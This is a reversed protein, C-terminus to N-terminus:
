KNGPADLKRSRVATQTDAPSEPTSKETVLKAPTVKPPEPVKAPETVKPSEKVEAPEPPPADEQRVTVIYRGDHSQYSFSAADAYNVDGELLVRDQAIVLDKVWDREAAEPM